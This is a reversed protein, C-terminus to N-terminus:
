RRSPMGSGVNRPHDGFNRAVMVSHGEEDRRCESNVFFKALDYEAAGTNGDSMRERGVFRVM